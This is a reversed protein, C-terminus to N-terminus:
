ALVINETLSVASDRRLSSLLCHGYSPPDLRREFGTSARTSATSCQLRANMWTVLADNQL